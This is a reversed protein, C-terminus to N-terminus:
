LTKEFEIWVPQKVFGMAENIRLMPQNRTNNWTRIERYGHARAYRVGHLKLAMAIGKGRYERRLGTLGQYVVDPLEQSKWLNSVGVYRDGDKAIFWGDPLINPAEIIDKEFHEYSTDTVPDTAPIDRSVDRDLEYSKRLAEPDRAREEALTTVIIGQGAAREEAGAFPGADVSAVDLRSEWARQVERFGRHELFAMSDPMSEKADARVLMAGRRRLEESLREYLTSGIGRRQYAPDVAIDLAYKDPHFQQPMHNLQAVGVVPGTEVEAMLRQKFYKDHEWNNDWHRIEEVSGRYDPMVLNRIEVLRPYDEERFPRLRVDM